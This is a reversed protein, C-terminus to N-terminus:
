ETDHRVVHLMDLQTAPVQRKCKMKTSEFGLWSGGGDGRARVCLRGDELLKEKYKDEQLARIEARPM